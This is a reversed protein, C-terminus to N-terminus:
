AEKEAAPLWEAVGFFLVQQVLGILEQITIEERHTHWYRLTTLLNSAFLTFLFEMNPFQEPLHMMRLLYPKMTEVVRPQFNPDRSLYYLKEAYPSFCASLRAGLLPIQDGASPDEVIESMIQEMEDIASQEIQDLVDYVDQFYEYFTSRHVGALEVISSVSIKEMPRERYLAWFADTLRAHTAATVEPQKHM